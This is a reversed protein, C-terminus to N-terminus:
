HLGGCSAQNITLFVDTSFILKGTASDTGTVTVTYVRVTAGIWAHRLTPRAPTAAVVGSSARRCELAFLCFLFRVRSGSNGFFLLCALM